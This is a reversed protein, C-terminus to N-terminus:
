GAGRGKKALIRWTALLSKEEMSSVQPISSEQLIFFCPLFAPPHQLYSHQRRCFLHFLARSTEWRPYWQTSSVSALSVGSVVEATFHLSGDMPPKASLCVSCLLPVSPFFFPPSKICEKGVKPRSVIRRGLQQGGMPHTRTYIRHRKKQQYSLLHSAFSPNVSTGEQTVATFTRRWVIM